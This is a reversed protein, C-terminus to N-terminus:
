VKSDIPPGKFIDMGLDVEVSILIGLILTQTNHTHTHTQLNEPTEIDIM